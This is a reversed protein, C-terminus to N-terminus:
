IKAISSKRDACQCETVALGNLWLNDKDDTILSGTLGPGLQLLPDNNIHRYIKFEYGDFRALSVFNNFWIFGNRDQVISETGNSELGDDVPDFHNNEYSLFIRKFNM